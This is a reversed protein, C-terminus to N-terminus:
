TLDRQMVVATALDGNPTAYYGARRAIEKFGLHRYLTLASINDAAVELFFRRAPTTQLDALVAAMLARGVGRRRWKKDVALTLLESEDAALRVVAFGALRRKKDIAVYIPTTARDTLYGIFASKPWGRFFAAGHLKTVSDADTMTAPEIHLGSPALWLKM